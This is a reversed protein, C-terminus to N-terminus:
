LWLKCNRKCTGCYRNQGFCKNFSKKENNLRREAYNQWWM